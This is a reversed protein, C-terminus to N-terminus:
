LELDPLAGARASRAFLNGWWVHDRGAGLSAWVEEVRLRRGGNSEDVVVIPTLGVDDLADLLALPHEGCARLAMPNWEVCVLADPNDTLLRRMGRLVDPEGGETDIKVADVHGSVLADVPRVDVEVRSVEHGLRSPSFGNLYSYDMLHFDRRAEAAGAAFQHITVNRLENRQINRELLRVTTPSPEVAHVHGAPGVHAAAPLAVTGVHAGVDVFTGGPPLASLLLRRTVSEFEPAVAAVEHEPLSIQLGDLEFSALEPRGIEQAALRHM